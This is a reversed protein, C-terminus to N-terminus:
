LTSQMETFLLIPSISADTLSPVFSDSVLACVEVGEVSCVESLVPANEIPVLVVDAVVIHGDLGAVEDEGRILVWGVLVGEVKVVLVLVDDGMGMVVFLLRMFLTDGRSCGSSM